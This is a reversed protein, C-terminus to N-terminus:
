NRSVGIPAIRGSRQFTSQLEEIFDIFIITVAVFRRLAIMLGSNAVIESARKYPIGSCRTVNRLLCCRNRKEVCLHARMSWSEILTKIRSADAVPTRETQKTKM